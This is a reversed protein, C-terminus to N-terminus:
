SREATCNVAPRPAAAPPCRDYPVGRKDSLKILNEFSGFLEDSISCRTFLNLALASSPQHVSPPKATCGHHHHCRCCAAGQGHSASRHCVAPLHPGLCRVASCLHQWSGSGAVWRCCACGNALEITDALDSTTATGATGDQRPGAAGRILKADINVSAVDNVICGVKLDSNQLVYRLLTTKGAPPLPPPPYPALSARHPPLCAPPVLRCLASSCLMAPLQGM